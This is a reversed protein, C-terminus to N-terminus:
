QSKRVFKKVHYNDIMLQGRLFSRSIDASYNNCFITKKFTLQRNVNLKTMVPSSGAIRLNPIQHRIWKAVHGKCSEETLRTYNLTLIITFNCFCYAEWLFPKTINEIIRQSILQMSQRSMIKKHNWWLGLKSYCVELLINMYPDHPRISLADSKPDSSQLNSDQWSRFDKKGEKKM